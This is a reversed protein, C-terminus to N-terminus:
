RGLSQKRQSGRQRDQGINALWQRGVHATYKGWKRDGHEDIAGVGKEDDPAITKLHAKLLMEVRRRDIHEPDWGSESLFWQLSKAEKRQAGGVPETNALATEFDQQARCAAVFGGPLAQFRPTPRPRVCPRLWTFPLICATLLSALSSQHLVNGDYEDVAADHAKNGLFKVYVQLFVAPGGVLARALVGLALAREYVEPRIL